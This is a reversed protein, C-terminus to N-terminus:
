CTGGTTSTGGMCEIMNGIAGSIATGLETFAVVVGLGVLSGAIAYETATLGEEEKLFKIVQTKFTQMNM